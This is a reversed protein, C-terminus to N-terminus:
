ARQGVKRGNEQWDGDTLPGFIAEWKTVAEAQLGPLVHSYLDGTIGIGSHGLRESVVKLHIGAALMLSAHTHRLDHFRLGGFGARKALDGFARSVTPPRYASGDPQCFVLGEVDWAGDAERTERLYRLTGLAEAPLTVVRPRGNKTPTFETVGDGLQSLGRLVSMTGASLDVDRWRLALLESRRLGTLVAVLYLPHYKSGQAATLLDRVGQWDLTKTESRQPRPADVADAPNTRLAGMRVGWRLAQSLVRHCHLATRATLGGTLLGSEFSQIHRPQLQALQITGLAPVIHRRVIVQYGEYTRNRVRTEAYDALWAQMFEAVTERSPEVYTGTNLQHAIEVRRREAQAKTGRVTESKYRKKGTAPDRGLYFTITWSDRAKTRQRLHGKSM